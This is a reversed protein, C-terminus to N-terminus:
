TDIIIKAQRSPEDKPCQEVSVTQATQVPKMEAMAQTLLTIINPLFFKQTSRLLVPRIHCSQYKLTSLTPRLLGVTPSSINFHWAQVEISSHLPFELKELKCSSWSFLASSVSAGSLMMWDAFGQTGSHLVLSVGLRKQCTM